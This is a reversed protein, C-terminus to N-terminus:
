PKEARRQLAAIAAALDDNSVVVDADGPVQPNRVLITVKAGPKFWKAIQECHEALSDHLMFLADARAEERATAPPIAQRRM